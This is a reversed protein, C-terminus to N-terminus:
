ICIGGMLMDTLNISHQSPTVDYKFWRDRVVFLKHPPSTYYFEMIINIPNIKDPAFRPHNYRDVIYTKGTISVTIHHLGKMGTLIIDINNFSTYVKVSRTSEVEIYTAIWKFIQSKTLTQNLTRRILYGNNVETDIMDMIM